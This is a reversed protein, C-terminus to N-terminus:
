HPAWALTDTADPIEDFGFLPDNEGILKALATDTLDRVPPTAIPPKSSKKRMEAPKRSKMLM